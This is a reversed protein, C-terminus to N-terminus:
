RILVRYAVEATQGRTAPDDPCFDNPTTSCGAFIGAQACLQIYGFFPSAAIDDFLPTAPATAPDFGLGKGVFVALQGRTAADDPCFLKPQASCGSTFGAKVFAEVYAYAADTTPVDGFTPTAPPNSVDLGFLKGIVVAAQRRTLSADVDFHTTSTGVMIAHTSALQVGKWFLHSVPVDDYWFRSLAHGGDLLTKQVDVARVQRPPVSAQVSLAALVGAAEGTLMAIPQLRIAGQALRSVGINKEAALLGDVSEPVLTEIPVQFSGGPAIDASTEGLDAELSADSKCNHLDTGYDGVAISTPFNQDAIGNTKAMDKATLTQMAVIRRSERIYPMPPLQRELPVLEPPIETCHQAENYASDYGEDNAVSWDPEGLDHQVYYVFGLTALKAKCSADRRAAADELFGVKLTGAWQAVGGVLQHGPYDNAWNVGTRTIAAYQTGDYSQSNTSDPLGRYANHFAFDVPYQIPLTESGNSTVISSYEALHTDYDPPPSKIFLEPPVGSPYKRIEAIYTISQICANADISDSLAIVDGTETADVVVRANVPQGDSLVLGTVANGSKTVSVVSREPLLGVGADSLMKELLKRGVSPEFCTASSSWHCTGISKGSPPFRTADQYYAVVANRFEAYLGSLTPPANGGDIQPVGGATMQGGVWDTEEILLVKAGARAASIAAGVGGPGAGVVAVDCDLPTLSADSGDSAGSGDNAGAGDAWQSGGVGSGGSGSIKGDEGASGGFDLCAAVSGAALVAFALKHTRSKKVL